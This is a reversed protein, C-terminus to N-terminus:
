KTGRDKRWEYVYAGCFIVTIGISLLLGWIGLVHLFFLGVGSASLMQKILWLFVLTGFGVATCILLAIGPDDKAEGWLDKAIDKAKKM